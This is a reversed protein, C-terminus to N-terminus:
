REDIPLGRRNSVVAIARPSDAAVARCSARTVVRRLLFGREQAVRVLALLTGVGAGTEGTEGEGQSHM